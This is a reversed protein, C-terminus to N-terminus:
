AVGGHQSLLRLADLVQANTLESRKAHAVYVAHCLHTWAVDPRDDEVAERACALLYALHEGDPVRTPLDAPAATEAAATTAHAAAGSTM